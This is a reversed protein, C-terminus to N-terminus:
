DGPLSPNQPEGGAAEHLPTEGRSGRANVDAKEDILWGAVDAHGGKAAWHLVTWGEKDGKSVLEPHDQLLAKVRELDGVAAVTYVDYDAKHALLL